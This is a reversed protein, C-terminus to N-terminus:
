LSKNILPYGLTTQITQVEKWDVFQPADLYALPNFFLLDATARSLTAQFVGKIIELGMTQYLYQDPLKRCHYHTQAITFKRSASGIFTIWPIHQLIVGHKALITETSIYTYGHLAKRGLLLPDLEPLPKSAYLGKYIRFLIGQGVYRKLTTYLTNKNTIGWVRALEDAHFIDEGMRALQAIRGAQVPTKTSKQETSMHVPYCM